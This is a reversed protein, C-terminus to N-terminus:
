FSKTKANWRPDLPHCARTIKKSFKLKNRGAVHVRENEDNERFYSAYEPNKLM